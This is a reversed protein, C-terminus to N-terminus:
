RKKKERHWEVYVIIKGRHLNSFHISLHFPQFREFQIKTYSRSESKKEEKEATKKWVCVCEKKDTHFPKKKERSPIHYQISKGNRQQLM